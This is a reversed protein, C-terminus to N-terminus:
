ANYKQVLGFVNQVMLSEGVVNEWTYSRSNNKIMGGNENEIFSNDNSWGVVAPEGQTSEFSVTLDNGELVFEYTYNLLKDENNQTVTITGNGSKVVIRTLTTFPSIAYPESVNGSVDTAVVKVNDYTTASTLSTLPIVVDNSSLGSGTAIETEGNKVSYNITGNSNDTANVTLSAFTSGINSITASSIVPAENDIVTEKSYYVNYIVVNETAADDIRIFLTTSTTLSSYKTANM